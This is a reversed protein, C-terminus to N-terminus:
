NVKMATGLFLPLNEECDVLLYVFPRDLIVEKQDAPGETKTPEVITVAGAQTGKEDVRIRTKHGVEALYLHAGEYAGLGSFDAADPSFADAMGMDQLVESSYEKVM